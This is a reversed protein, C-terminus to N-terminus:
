SSSQPQLWLEKEFILKKHADVEYSDHPDFLRQFTFKETLIM